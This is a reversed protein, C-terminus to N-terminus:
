RIMIMAKIIMLTRIILKVPMMVTRMKVTVMVGRVSLLIVAM